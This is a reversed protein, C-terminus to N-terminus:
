NLAHYKKYILWASYIFSPPPFTAYKLSRNTAAFWVECISLQIFHLQIDLWCEQRQLMNSLFIAYNQRREDKCPSFKFFSWIIQKQKVEMNEVENDM